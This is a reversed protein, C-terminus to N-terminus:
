AAAGMVISDLVRFRYSGRKAHHFTATVRAAPNGEIALAFDYAAEDRTICCRHAPIGARADPALIIEYHYVGSHEQVVYTQVVLQHKATCLRGDVPQENV